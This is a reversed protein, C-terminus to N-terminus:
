DTAPTCTNVYTVVPWRSQRVAIKRLWATRGDFKAQCWVGDAATLCADVTVCSNRPVVGVAEADDRAEARVTLNVVAQVKRDGSPSAKLPDKLEAAPACQDTFGLYVCGAAKVLAELQAALGNTGVRDFVVSKGSATTGTMRRQNGGLKITAVGGADLFALQRDVIGWKDVSALEAGCNSKAVDQRGNSGTKALAIACLAGGDAFTEEYVQWNGSFAEIFDSESQAAASGALFASMIVAAACKAVVRFMCDGRLFGAAM